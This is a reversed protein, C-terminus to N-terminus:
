SAISFIIRFLPTNRNWSKEFIRTDGINAPAYFQEASFSPIDNNRCPSATHDIHRLQDGQEGSMRSVRFLVNSGPIAHGTGDGGITAIGV